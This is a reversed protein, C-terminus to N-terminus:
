ALARRLAEMTGALYGRGFLNVHVLLYYLQYTARRQEIGPRALPWTEQYARYFARPFGGFLAAMALDVERHGYHSAPDILAPEGAATMHVNGSWLDGHLLAPGEAEAAALVTPLRELLPEFEAAEARGLLGSARARALQPQLRRERWFGAWEAAAANEQPLSGIFNDRPWGWGPAGAGGRQHLRALGAGLREWAEPGGPGPELWELALWSGGIALVEPVRVEGVARLCELADAEAELLAAGPPEDPALKLFVAPGGQLRVQLTTSICGGGVRGAAAVQVTGFRGALARELERGM